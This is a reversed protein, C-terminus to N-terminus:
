SVAFFATLTGPPTEPYPSIKVTKNIPCVVDIGSENEFTVLSNRCFGVHRPVKGQTSSGVTGVSSKMSRRNKLNCHMREGGISTVVIVRRSCHEDHGV